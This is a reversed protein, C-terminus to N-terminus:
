CRNENNSDPASVANKKVKHCDLSSRLRVSHSDRPATGGKVHSTISLNSIFIMFVELAIREFEDGVVVRIILMTYM